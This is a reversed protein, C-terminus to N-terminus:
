DFLRHSDDGADLIGLDDLLDEGMQLRFRRIGFGRPPRRAPRREPSMSVQGVQPPAPTKWIAWLRRARAHVRLELWKVALFIKWPSLHKQALVQHRYDWKSLDDHVLPHGKVQEGYQTWNHPTVYTVNVFDGDHYILQDIATRFTQWTEDRLGVVHAVISFIGHSKLLRCAELDQRPTSGKKIKELVEPEASEIGLLIYQIGAEKYLHLIDADRVIDAFSALTCQYNIDISDQPLAWM